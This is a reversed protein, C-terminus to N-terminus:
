LINGSRVLESARVAVFGFRAELREAATGPLLITVIISQQDATLEQRMVVCTEDAYVAQMFDSSALPVSSLFLLCFPLTSSRFVFL